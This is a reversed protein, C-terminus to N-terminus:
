LAEGDIRSLAVSVEGWYASTGSVPAFKLTPVAHFVLGDWTKAIVPECTEVMKRFARAEEREMLTVQVEHSETLGDRMYGVPHKRGAYSVLKYAPEIDYSTQPNWMGRALGGAFYLYAWSTDIRAPFSVTNVSGSEAFTVAEYSYDLNLPAYRDNISAGAALGSGLLIKGNETIRYVSISVVEALEDDEEVGVHVAMGGTDDDSVLDLRAPKPLVYDVTVERIASATLTSTSRVSVSLTYPKLNEPLWEDASIVASTATGMDLAFVQGAEGTVALTANALTGSADDYQLEVQIPTSKVVFGDAPQAFSM